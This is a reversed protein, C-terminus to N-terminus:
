TGTAWTFLRLLFCSSARVGIVAFLCFVCRQWVCVSCSLFSLKWWWLLKPCLPLFDPQAITRCIQVANGKACCACRGARKAARQREALASHHVPLAACGRRVCCSLRNRGTAVVADSARAREAAVVACVCRGVSRAILLRLCLVTCQLSCLLSLLLQVLLFFAASFCCCHVCHFPRRRQQFALPLSHIPRLLSSTSAQPTIHSQSPSLALHPGRQAPACACLPVFFSLVVISRAPLSFSLLLPFHKAAVCLKVVVNPQTTHGRCLLPAGNERVSLFLSSSQGLFLLNLAATKNFAAFTPFTELRM